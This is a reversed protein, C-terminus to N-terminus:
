QPFTHSTDLESPMELWLCHCGCRRMVRFSHHVRGDEACDRFCSLGLVRTRGQPVAQEGGEEGVKGGRESSRHSREQTPNPLTYCLTRFTPNDSDSFTLSDGQRYFFTCVWGLVGEKDTRLYQLKLTKEQGSKGHLSDHILQYLTIM